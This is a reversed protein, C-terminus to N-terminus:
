FLTCISYSILHWRGELKVLNIWTFHSKVSGTQKMWVLIYQFLPVYKETQLRTTAAATRRKREPDARQHTEAGGWAAQIRRREFPCDPTFLCICNLLIYWCFVHIQHKIWPKQLGNNRWNLENIGPSWISIQVTGDVPWTLYQEQWIAMLACAYSCQVCAMVWCLLVCVM